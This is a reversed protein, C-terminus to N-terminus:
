ARRNSTKAFCASVRGREGPSPAQVHGHGRALLEDHARRTEALM